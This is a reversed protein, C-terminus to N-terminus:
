GAGMLALRPLFTTAAATAAPQIAVMVNAFQTSSGNNVNLTTSSPTTIAGNSDWQDEIEAGDVRLFTGSGASTGGSTNVYTGMVTWCDAVPTTLTATQTTSLGNGKTKTLSGIATAQDSGTYSAACITIRDTNTNRTAVIDGTTPSLLGWLSITNNFVLTAQEDIKTMAVGNCTVGTTDNSVNSQNCVSVILITDSGTITFSAITATTAFAEANGTNDIALAM